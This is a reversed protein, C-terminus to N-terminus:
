LYINIFHEVHESFPVAVLIYYHTTQCLDRIIIQLVAIDVNCLIKLLSSLIWIRHFHQLLTNSGTFLSEAVQKLRLKKNKCLVESVFNMAVYQKLRFCISKLSPKKVACIGQTVRAGPKHLLPLNQNVYYKM